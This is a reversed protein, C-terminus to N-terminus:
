ERKAKDVSKKYKMPGVGVHGKFWKGFYSQSPFHLAESIEKVTKDTEVIMQKADALLANAIWFSPTQSTRERVVFSFYRMSLCQKDAYYGVEHEQRYNQRLCVFFQRVIEDKRNVSNKTQADETTFAIVIQLLLCEKARELQLQNLQWLRRAEAAAYREALNQHHQYLTMYGHVVRYMEPSLRTVPRQRLQLVRDMDIIRALLPSVVELEVAMMLGDLDDSKRKVELVSNPFYLCLSGTELRHRVHDLAIEATGNMCLFVGAREVRLPEAGVALADPLNGRLREYVVSEDAM